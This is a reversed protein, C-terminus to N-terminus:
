LSLGTEIRQFGPGAGKPLEGDCKPCVLIKGVVPEGECSSEHISFMGSEEEFEKLSQRLRYKGCIGCQAIRDM